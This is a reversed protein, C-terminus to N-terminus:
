MDSTTRDEKVSPSTSTVNMFQSTNIIQTMVAARTVPTTIPCRRHGRGWPAVNLYAPSRSEPDGPVARHKSELHPVQSGIERDPQHNLEGQPRPHGEHVAEIEAVEVGHLYRKQHGPDWGKGEYRDSEHHNGARDHFVFQVVCVVVDPRQGHGSQGRPHGGEGDEGEEPNGSHHNGQEDRTRDVVDIKRDRPADNRRHQDGRRYPCRHAVGNPVDDGLWPRYAQDGIDNQEQHQQETGDDHGDFLEGVPPRTGM